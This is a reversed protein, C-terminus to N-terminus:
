IMGSPHHHFLLLLSTFTLYYFKLDKFHLLFVQFYSSHTEFSLASLPFSSNIFCSLGACPRQILKIPLYITHLLHQFILPLYPGLKKFSFLTMHPCFNFLTVILCKGGGGRLTGLFSRLHSLPPLSPLRSDLYPRHPPHVALPLVLHSPVGHLTDFSEHWHDSFHLLAYM